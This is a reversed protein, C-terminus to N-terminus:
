SSWDKRRGSESWALFERALETSGVGLVSRLAREPDRERRFAQVLKPLAAEGWRDAIFIVSWLAEDYAVQALEPIALNTLAPEILQFSLFADRRRYDPLPNISFRDAEVYQALGEQFFRPARDETADTLLAHLLEHTVIARSWVELQPLWGFPLRIKGDFLGVVSLGGYSESFDGFDLLLVDCRNASLGPLLPKLRLREAELHDLVSRAFDPDREPPYFIRFHPSDLSLSADYLKKEISVQRLRVDAGMGPPSSRRAMSLVRLALDYHQGSVLLDALDNLTRRDAGGQRLAFSAAAVLLRSAEERQGLKDLALARARLLQPPVKEADEAHVQRTLDALQQWQGAMALSDVAAEVAPGAIPRGAALADEVARLSAMGLALRREEWDEANFIRATAPALDCGGPLTLASSANEGPFFVHLTAGLVIAEGTAPLPSAPAFPCTAVPEEVDALRLERRLDRDRLMLFTSVPDALVRRRPWPESLSHQTAAAIAPGMQDTIAYGTALAQLSEGWRPHAAALKEIAASFDRSQTALEVEIREVAFAELSSLDTLHQYALVAGIGDGRGWAARARIWAALPPEDEARFALGVPALLPEIDNFRREVIALQAQWLAASRRASADLTSATATRVGALTAQRLAVLARSSEEPDATAVAEIRSESGSESRSSRPTCAVSLALGLLAISWAKREGRAVALLGVGALLLWPSSSAGEMAVSRSTEGSGRKRPEQEWSARLAIPLTTLTVEEAAYQFVLIDDIGSIWSVHFAASRPRPAAM